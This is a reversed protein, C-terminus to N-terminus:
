IAKHKKDIKMHQFKKESTIFKYKQLFFSVLMEVPAM